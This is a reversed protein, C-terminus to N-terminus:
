LKCSLPFICSSTSGSKLSLRGRHFRYKHWIPVLVSCCCQRLLATLSILRCMCLFLLNQHQWLRKAWARWFMKLAEQLLRVRTESDAYLAPLFKRPMSSGFGSLKFYCGASRMRDMWPLMKELSYLSHDPWDMVPFTFVWKAHRLWHAVEAEGSFHLPSECM